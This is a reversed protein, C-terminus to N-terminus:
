TPAGDEAPNLTDHPLGTALIRHSATDRLVKIFARCGANHQWFELHPGRPNDRLYVWDHVAEAEAGLPPRTRAADGVYTFESHDRPGCYPCPIILM